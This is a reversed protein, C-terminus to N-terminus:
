MGIIKEIQKGADSSKHASYQKGNSLTITYVDDDSLTWKTSQSIISQTSGVGLFGKEYIVDDQIYSTKLGFGVGVFCLVIIIAIPIFSLASEKPTIGIISLDYKSILVSRIVTALVITAIAIPVYTLLSEWSSADLLGKQGSRVLNIVVAYLAVAVVAGITPAFNILYAKAKSNIQKAKASAM